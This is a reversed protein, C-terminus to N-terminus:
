VWRGTLGVPGARGVRGTPGAGVAPPRAARVRLPPKVYIRADIVAPSERMGVPQAGTQIAAQREAETVDYHWLRSPKGCTLHEARTRAAHGHLARGGPLEGRPSVM